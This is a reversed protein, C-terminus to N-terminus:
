PISWTGSYTTPPPTSNPITATWSGNTVTVTSGSLNFTGNFYFKGGAVNGSGNTNATVSAAGALSTTGTGSFSGVSADVGSVTLNGFDDLTMTFTGTGGGTYTGTFKGAYSNIAILAFNSLHTTTATVTDNATDITSPLASWAGNVVTFIALNSATAGTPLTAPNYKLTISLPTGTFQTGSPGIDVGEVLGTTAPLDAATLKSATLQAATIPSNTSPVTIVLEGDSSTATNGSVLLPNSISGSNSSGGGGCGALTLSVIFISSLGLISSRLNTKM